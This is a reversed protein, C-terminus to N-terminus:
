QGRCSLCVPMSSSRTLCPYHLKASHQYVPHVAATCPHDGAAYHLASCGYVDAVCGDAGAVLLLEAAGAFDTRVRPMLGAWQGATGLWAGPGGAGQPGSAQGGAASSISGQLSTLSVGIQSPANTRSYPVVPRMTTQGKSSGAGANSSSSHKGAHGHAEDSATAPGNSSSIEGAISSSHLCDACSSCAPPHWCHKSESPRQLCVPQSDQMAAYHLPTRQQEDAQRASYGAQLLYPILEAYGKFAAIHLPTCPCELHAGAQLGTPQSGDSPTSCACVPTAEQEGEATAGEAHCASTIGMASGSLHSQGCNPAAASTLNDESGSEELSQICLAGDASADLEPASVSHLATMSQMHVLLVGVIDLSGGEVAFHLPTFGAVCLANFQLSDVDVSDCMSAGMINGILRPVPGVFVFHSYLRLVGPMQSWCLAHQTHMSCASCPGTEQKSPVTCPVGGLCMESAAMAAQLWCCAQLLAAKPRPLRTCLLRVM